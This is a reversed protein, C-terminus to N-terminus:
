TEKMTLTYTVQGQEDSVAMLIIETAQIVNKNKQNSNRFFTSVNKIRTSYKDLMEVPASALVVPKLDLNNIKINYLIWLM